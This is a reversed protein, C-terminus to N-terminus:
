TSIAALESPERSLLASPADVQVEVRLPLSTTVVITKLGNVDPSTSAPVRPPPASTLRSSPAVHDAVLPRSPRMTCVNANAVVIEAAPDLEETRLEIEEIPIHLSNDLKCLRTEWDQRVDLLLPRESGALRAKLEQPTIEDM